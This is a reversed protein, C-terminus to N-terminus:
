KTPDTVRGLFLISGNSNDRIFFLFPHDARFVPPPANTQPLGTLGVMVATAAAAETGEENVEIFAKHAVASIFLDRRGDMGSFDALDGDFADPMGLGALTEALSFGSTVRFKPLFVIVKKHRLNGTWAKLNQTTLEAELNGLGDVTRPLLVVMSLDGGAYPLELVQLDPSEAYDFEDTQRMLPVTVTNGSSLHFPEKKTLRTEFQRIWNGKFYIANVLVLRTSGDLM